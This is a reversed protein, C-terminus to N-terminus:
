RATLVPTREGKVFRLPEWHWNPQLEDIVMSHVAKPKKPLTMTRHGRPWPDRSRLHVRVGNKICAKEMVQIMM